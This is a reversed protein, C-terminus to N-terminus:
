AFKIFQRSFLVTVKNQQPLLCSNHKFVAEATNHSEWTDQSLSSQNGKNLSTNMSSKPLLPRQQLGQCNKCNVMISLRINFLQSSTFFKISKEYFLLYHIESNSLSGVIRCRALFTAERVPSFCKSTHKGSCKVPSIAIWLFSPFSIYQRFNNYHVKHFLERFVGM